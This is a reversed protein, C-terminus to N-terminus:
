RKSIRCVRQFGPQVNIVDKGDSPQWYLYERRIEELADIRAEYTQNQWFAFDSGPQSLNTKKSVEAIKRTM